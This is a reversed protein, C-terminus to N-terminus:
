KVEEVPQDVYLKVKEAEALVLARLAQLEAIDAQLHNIRAQKKAIQADIMPLTYIKDTHKEETVRKLIKVQNINTVQDDQTVATFTEAAISVSVMFLVATISIFLKKMKSGGKITSLDM